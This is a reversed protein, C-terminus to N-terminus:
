DLGGYRIRYILKTLGKSGLILGIAFVLEMLTAFIASKAELGLGQSSGGQDYFWIVHYVWYVADSFAFFLLLIGILVFGVGYVEDSTWAQEEVFEAPFTSLKKSVSFPFFWMFVTITLMLICFLVFMLQPLDFGSTQFVYTITVLQRITYLFLWIAFLKVALAILQNPNM